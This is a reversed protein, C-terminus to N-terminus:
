PYITRGRHILLFSKPYQSCVLLIMPYLSLKCVDFNKIQLDIIYIDDVHSFEYLAYLNDPYLFVTDTTDRTASIKLRTERQNSYGKNKEKGM